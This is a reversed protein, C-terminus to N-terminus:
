SPMDAALAQYAVAGLEEFFGSHVNRICGDHSRLSGYSRVNMDVGYVLMPQLTLM